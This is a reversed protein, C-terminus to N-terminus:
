QENSGREKNRAREKSGLNIGAFLGSQIWSKLLSAARMSVEQEDYWNCLGECLEGFTKDKILADLAWAEDKVLAYFRSIYDKRWLVWPTFSGNNLPKDPRQQDTIAQWIAVTNWSFDCRMLSPHPIFRLNAWSEPPIAAIQEITLTEDDAADFTLTMKWEFEALEALFPVEGKDKLYKAFTDGFWRISRYVSPYNDIYDGGLQRFKETGLYDNLVPFNSALTELLRCRYSDLYIFLRQDVSIKESPVIFNQIDTQGKLLYNQFLNQLSFLGNM